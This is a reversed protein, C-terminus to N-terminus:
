GPNVTFSLTLHDARALPGLEVPPPAPPAPPAPPGPPLSDLLAGDVELLAGPDYFLGALVDNRAGPDHPGGVHFGFTVGAEHGIEWVEDATGARRVWRESMLEVPLVVPGAVRYGAVRDLAAADFVRSSDVRAGGFIAGNAGGGWQWVAYPMGPVAPPPSTQYHPRWWTWPAFALSTGSAFGGGQYRVVRGPYLEELAELAALCDGASLVAPLLYDTTELDLEVFEGLELAGVLEAFRRVQGAIDPRPEVWFYLGRWRLGAARMAFRNQEWYPDIWAPGQGVKAAGLVVGRGTAENWPFDGQYRAVDVGDLM